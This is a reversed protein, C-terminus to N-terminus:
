PQGLVREGARVTEHPNRHCGAHIREVHRRRRRDGERVQRLPSGTPRRQDHVIRAASRALIRAHTTCPRRLCPQPRSARPQSASTSPDWTDVEEHSPPSIAGSTTPAQKGFRFYWLLMLASTVMYFGHLLWLPGAPLHFVYVAHIMNGVNALALNGLSYSAVDKTRLAKSLMPLTSAAFIITSISGAIVPLGADM